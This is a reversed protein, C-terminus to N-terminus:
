LVMRQFSGSFMKGQFYLSFYVGIFIGCGTLIENTELFNPIIIATIQVEWFNCVCYIDWVLTFLQCVFKWIEGAFFIFLKM